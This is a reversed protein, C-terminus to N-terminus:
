RPRDFPETGAASGILQRLRTASQLHGGAEALSLAEAAIAGADPDGRAAALEAHALRADYLGLMPGESLARAVFPEAGALDGRAILVSAVGAAAKAAFLPLDKATELSRRFASEARDLDQEDRRAHGLAVLAYATWERHGLREAIAIAKEATEAAEAARGLAVLAEARHAQCFSEGEAHGLIRELELAEEIDALGEAARDMCALAWGRTSRPGGVRVLDGSDMFLRAVRDFAESAGRLDGGLLLSMARGDLIDAAGRSNGVGEFLALAEDFAAQARDDRGANMDLVGRVFLAGARAEADLGAEAVALEALEEARPLDEAGFTLMAIRALLRSREPPHRYEGLAAWLDERAGALNDRRARAEGRVELLTLLVPGTPQLALGAEALHEAENSAHRDLANRAAQGYAEAAGEADGACALHRALEAPEGGGGLARALMQHLRARESAGLADAATEAVLDHAAAWGREGVRALGARALEDLDELVRRQPSDTAAAVLRAPAERGLLALLALIERREVPQRQVLAHTARRRGARAAHRALEAAEPTRSRWRGAGDRVIAGAGALSRVVEALSFPTGGTAEEIAQALAEEAVLERIAKASLPPLPLDAAPRALTLLDALFPAVLGRPSIEEPRYSLIMGLGPVRQAVLGLLSLSTADAWQLDDVVLLAGKSVTAELLRVAGERALASRSEPDVGSSGGGLLEELEPVIDALARRAREPITRAADVDLALSETLLSRALGWAEEREAPFARAWISPVGVRAAVEALLRTKGAGAKGSVLVVGSAPAGLVDLAAALEEDRGVFPLEEVAPASRLPWPKSAVQPRRAGAARGEGRLLRGQLAAAEPSPDIGLEDALRRRFSDFARLAAAVDGSAALARILLLHSPERLPEGAVAAEALVVAQEPHATELAATAALELAELHARSLRSRYPRAWDDYADEALPEGGWLALGVRLEALATAARGEGLYRRGNELRVLFEEADMSCRDGATFSYGQTGTIILLPDGLGRRLRAVLVKLNAPPDMPAQKPWLAEALLDNPVFAGRRTLLVRLLVRGLRGGLAGPPIEEGARRVSFRGLLRFEIVAGVGAGPLSSLGMVVWASGFRM